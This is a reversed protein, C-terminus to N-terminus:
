FKQTYKMYLFRGIDFGGYYSYNSNPENISSTAEQQSNFFNNNLQSDLPVANNPIITVLSSTNPIHNLM